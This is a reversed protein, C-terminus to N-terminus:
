EAARLGESDHDADFLRQFEHTNQLFRNYTFVSM